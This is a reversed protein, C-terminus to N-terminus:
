LVVEYLSLESVRRREGHVSQGMRSSSRRLIHTQHRIRWGTPKERLCCSFRSISSFLVLLSYLTRPTQFLITKGCSKRIRMMAGISEAADNSVNVMEVIRCLSIIITTGRPHDRFVSDTVNATWLLIDYRVSKITALCQWRWAPSQGCLKM